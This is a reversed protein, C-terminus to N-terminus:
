DALAFSLENHVETVVFPQSTLLLRLQKLIRKHKSLNIHRQDVLRRRVKFGFSTLKIGVVLSSTGVGSNVVTAINQLHGSPEVSAVHVFEQQGFLAVLVFRGRLVKADSFSKVFWVFFEESSIGVHEFRPRM